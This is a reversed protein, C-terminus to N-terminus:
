ISVFFSEIAVVFFHIVLTLTRTLTGLLCLKGYSMLPAQREACGAGLQRGWSDISNAWFRPDDHVNETTIAGHASSVPNTSGM